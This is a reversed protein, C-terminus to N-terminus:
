IFERVSAAWQFVEENSCRLTIVPMVGRCPGQPLGEHVRVDMCRRCSEYQDEEGTFRNKHFHWDHAQGLEPNLVKWKTDYHSACYRKGDLLYKGVARCNYHRGPLSFQCRLKTQIPTPPTYPLSM